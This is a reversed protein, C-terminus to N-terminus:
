KGLLKGVTGVQLSNTTGLGGTPYGGIAVIVDDDTLLMAEKLKKLGANLHVNYRGIHEARICYVGFSLQLRRVVEQSPTTALIVVRPRLSSMNQATFGSSTFSVIATVNLEEAARAASKCVFEVATPSKRRFLQEQFLEAENELHESIRQLTRVAALPHDGVSTEASLMVADTGDLIANAVDSTEARTAVPNRVMSELMQTAVVVPKAAANCLKIIRKQILPVEEPPLEVGLDGRAVMVADAAEIIKEINEVGVRSEVKAVIGISQGDKGMAERIKQVDEARNVFSAGLFDVQKEAAFRCDSVDQYDLYCDPTLRTDPATVGKRSKIMGGNVVELLVETDSCREATRLIILGDDILVRDGISLAGVLEEFAVFLATKTSRESGARMTLQEGASVEFPQEIETLRLKPGQIDLLIAVRDSCQRIRDILEGAAKHRMHSMNVRFVDVGAEFLSKMMEPSQSAPGLTAIIRTRTFFPDPVKFTNM